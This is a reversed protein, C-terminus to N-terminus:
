WRQDDVSGFPNKDNTSSHEVSHFWKQQSKQNGAIIKLSNFAMSISVPFETVEYTM